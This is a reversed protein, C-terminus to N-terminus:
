HYIVSCKSVALRSFHSKLCHLHTKNREGLLHDQNQCPGYIKAMFSLSTEVLPKKEEEVCQLVNESIHRFIPGLDSTFNFVFFKIQVEWIRFFRFYFKLNSMEPNKKYLAAFNSKSFPRPFIQIADVSSVRVCITCMTYM